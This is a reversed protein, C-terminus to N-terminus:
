QPLELLPNYDEIFTHPFGPWPTLHTWRHRRMMQSSDPGSFTCPFPKHLQCSYVCVTKITDSASCSAALRASEPKWRFNGSQQKTRELHFHNNKNKRIIFFSTFVYVYLFAHESYFYDISPSFYSFSLLIWQSNGWDFYGSNLSQYIYMEWSM